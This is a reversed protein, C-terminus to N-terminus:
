KLVAKELESRNNLIEVFGKILRMIGSYIGDAVYKNLKKNNGCRYSTIFIWISKDLAMLRDETIHVIADKQMQKIIEYMEKRHQDLDDNTIELYYEYLLRNLLKYFPDDENKCIFGNSELFESVTKM